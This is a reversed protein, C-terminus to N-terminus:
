AELPACMGNRLMFHAARVFGFWDSYDNHDTYERLRYTGDRKLQLSGRRIRIGKSRELPYTYGTVQLATAKSVQAVCKTDILWADDPRSLGRPYGFLDFTGAVRNEPDVIVCESEAVEFAAEDKFRLYAAVYGAILDDPVVDRSLHGQEILEIWEHTDSGRKRAAELIDLPVGTFDTLGTIGMVETISPVREGDIV